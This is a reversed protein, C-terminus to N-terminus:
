NIGAPEGDIEKRIEEFLVEDDTDLMAKKLLKDIRDFIEDAGSLDGIENIKYFEEYVDRIWKSAM